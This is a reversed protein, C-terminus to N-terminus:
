LTVAIGRLIFYFVAADLFTDTQTKVILRSIKANNYSIAKNHEIM